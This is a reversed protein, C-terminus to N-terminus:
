TSRRGGRVRAIARKGDESKALQREYTAIVEADTMGSREDIYLTPSAAVDAEAIRRYLDSAIDDHKAVLMAKVVHTWQAAWRKRDRENLADCLTSGSVDLEFAVEKLGLYNVATRILELQRKWVEGGTDSPRYVLSLQLSM